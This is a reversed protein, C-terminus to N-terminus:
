ERELVSIYKPIEELVELKMETLENDNPSFENLIRKAQHIGSLAKDILDKIVADEIKPKRYKHNKHHVYENYKKIGYNLSEVALNYKMEEISNHSFRNKTTSTIIREYTNQLQKLKALKEYTAISDTINFQGKKNLKRFDEYAFERDSIPNDIFQWTHDFPMHSKIFEKPPILFYDDRFEHNWKDNIAYGASWTIDILYYNTGIKVANWSHGNDPINGNPFRTYGRILYNKVGISTSMASFLESYHQCLGKRNRLVYQIIEDSTNRIKKINLKHIDYQVNHAIWVYLARVKQEPTVLNKTLHNAIEQYTKLHDPVSKANQDIYSYQSQAEVRGVVLLFVILLLKKIM